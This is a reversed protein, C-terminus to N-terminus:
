TGSALLSPKPWTWPINARGHPVSVVIMSYSSCPFLSWFAPAGSLTRSEGLHPCSIYIKYSVEGRAAQGEPWKEVPKPLFRGPKM